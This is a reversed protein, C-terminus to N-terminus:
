GKGRGGPRGAALLCQAQLSLMIPCVHGGYPRYVELCDQSAPDNTGPILVGAIIGPGALATTKGKRPSEQCCRLVNKSM